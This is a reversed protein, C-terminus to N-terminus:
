SEGIELITMPPDSIAPNSISLNSFHYKQVKRFKGWNEEFSSFGVLWVHISAM